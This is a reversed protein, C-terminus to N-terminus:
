ASESKHRRFIVRRSAALASTMRSLRSSPLSPEQKRASGSPSLLNCSSGTPAMRLRQLIQAPAYLVGNIGKGESLFIGQPVFYEKSKAAANRDGVLLREARVKGVEAEEKGFITARPLM